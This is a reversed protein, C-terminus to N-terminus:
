KTKKGGRRRGKTTPGGSDGQGIVPFYTQGDDKKPKHILKEDAVKANVIPKIEEVNRDPRYRPYVNLSKAIMPKNKIFNNVIQPAAKKKPRPKRNPKNFVVKKEKM